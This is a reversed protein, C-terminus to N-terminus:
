LISFFGNKRRLQLNDFSYNVEGFFTLKTKINENEGLFENNKMQRKRKNKLTGLFYRESITRILLKRHFLQEAM